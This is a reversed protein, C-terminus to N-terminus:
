PAIKKLVIVESYQKTATDIFDNVEKQQAVSLSIYNTIVNHEYVISNGELSYTIKSSILPTSKEFNAPLYAIKYGEPLTITTKYHHENKYEYTKDYKRDKEITFYSLPKNLNLNLYMEEGLLRVQDYVTFDYKVEFDKEYEYKNKETYNTVKFKNNGKQLLGKYLEELKTTTTAYELRRFVDAKLYGSFSTSASGNIVGDVITLTATDILQNRSSPVIPVNEIKYNEPGNEVLAEKGQIFSTPLDIPTYRGTADLFYTTTGDKYSLIMHNDVIPTPVEEYKYPISRTGIWTLKGDIGAIDLMEKLISSNDKCDGYKKNFVDNAERPIFGGLAYEFDIYKINQQTWYYIAKVKELDSNLPATLQTVIKKLEESPEQTNVDKILSAYWAYLSSLDQLVPIEKDAVKYSTIIPIIHPLISQFSSVDSEYPFADVKAIEWTYLTTKRKVEKNFTINLKQTNFEVFRLTVENDAEITVKNQVIPYFSAFYFPSLFRPNKIKEVYKLTTKSGKKLNNYIFNVSKADDYFSQDLQDKYKFDSVKEERYKGDRFNYAVAEISALEFFYSFSKSEKSGQSAADSLYMDQEQIEQSIALAGDEIRITIYTSEQLRIYNEDPYQKKYSEFEKSQQAFLAVTFLLFFIQATCSKYKKLM